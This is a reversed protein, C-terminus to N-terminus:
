YWGLFYLLWGGVAVFLFFATLGWVIKTCDMYYLWWTLTCRLIISIVCSAGVSTCSMLLMMLPNGEPAGRRVGIYTCLGDLLTVIVFALFSMIFIASLAPNSGASTKLRRRTLLGARYVLSQWSELFNPQGVPSAGADTPECGVPKVRLRRGVYFFRSRGARLRVM